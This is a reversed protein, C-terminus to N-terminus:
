KKKGLFDYIEISDIQDSLKMSRSSQSLYTSGYYFEHKYNQGNKFKILAYSDKKDAKLYKGMKNVKHVKLSDNNAAALLLEHGDGLILKAFGKADKDVMFGSRQVHVFTFNGKGDGQLYLGISADYRGTSVETAYSNGV